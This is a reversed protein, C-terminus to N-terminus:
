PITALAIMAVYALSYFWEDLTNIDKGYRQKLLTDIAVDVQTQEDTMPVFDRKSLDAM